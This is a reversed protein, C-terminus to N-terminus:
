EVGGHPTPASPAAGLAPPPGAFRVLRSNVAFRLLHGARRAPCAAFASAVLEGFTLHHPTNWHRVPQAGRGTPAATAPGALDTDATARM